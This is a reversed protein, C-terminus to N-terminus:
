AFALHFACASTASTSKGLLRVRSDLSRTNIVDPATNKVSIEVGLVGKKSWIGDREKERTRTDQLLNNSVLSDSLHAKPTQTQTFFM